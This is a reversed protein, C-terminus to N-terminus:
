PQQGYSERLFFLAIILSAFYTLPILILAYHYDALHYHPVGGIIHDSSHYTLLWGILPQFVIGSAVVAANNFGIATGVLSAQSYDKIVAFSLAQGASAMGFLILLPYLLVFPLHLYIVVVSAIVGLLSVIILPLKRRKIRDSWAGFLLSGIAIGLWIMSNASTAATITVHYASQIFAAGWLSAFATIPAWITFAYAAVVWTIRRKLVTVLGVKIETLSISAMSAKPHRDEVFFLVLVMLIAGASALIMLAHRWGFHNVLFALPMQGAMAGTAGLVMTVGAMVAFYRSPFWVSAVYLVAIFAFASGFGMLLRGIAALLPTSTLSFFLTGIICMLLSVSILKKISMYDFLLGAPIQMVTYSYYYFSVVLGVGAATLGLTSMLQPAIVSVSVQLGMEFFLFLAALLFILWPKVRGLMPQQQARNKKIENNELM